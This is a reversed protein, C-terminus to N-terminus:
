KKAIAYAAAAAAAKLTLDADDAATALPAVKEAEAKDPSDKVLRVLLEMVGWLVFLSAFLILMGILTIQLSQGIISENAPLTVATETIEELEEAAQLLFHVM